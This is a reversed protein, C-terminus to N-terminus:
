HAVKELSAWLWGISILGFFAAIATAVGVTIGTAKFVKEAICVADRFGFKKPQNLIDRASMTVYPHLAPTTKM